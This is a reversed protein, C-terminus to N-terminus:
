EVPICVETVLEEAPTNAPDNVYMEFPMAMRVAMAGSPVWEEMIRQWTQTVTNYPGVHQFVAFKGGDLVGESVDDDAPLPDNDTVILCSRFRTEEPPTTRMDDPTFGIAYGTRGQLNHKGVYIGLAQFAAGAAASFSGDAFGLRDAYIIRMDPLTRVEPQM